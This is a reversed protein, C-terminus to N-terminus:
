GELVADIEFVSTVAAKVREGKDNLLPFPETMRTWDCLVIDGVKVDTVSPSIALVEFRNSQDNATDRMYIMSTEKHAVHRLLVDDNIPKFNKVLDTM